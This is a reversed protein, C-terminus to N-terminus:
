KNTEPDSAIFAVSNIAEQYLSFSGPIYDLTLLLICPFSWNTANRQATSHQATSHQATSHQATSHQATSHQVTSRQAASRQATNHHTINHQTTSLSPNVDSLVVKNIYWVDDERLLEASLRNCQKCWKYSTRTCMSYYVNLLPVCLTTCMSYYYVYLLVCLTTTCM